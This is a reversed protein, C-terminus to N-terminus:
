RAMAERLPVAQQEVIFRWEMEEAESMYLIDLPFRMACPALAERISDVDDYTRYVVLVDVDSADSEGRM